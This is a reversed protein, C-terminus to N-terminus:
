KKPSIVLLIMKGTIQAPKDITGLDALKEYFNNVIKVGNKAYAQQRGKMRLVVKVKNGDNLFRTAHRLKTELDHTDITMSLQIEKFEVTKQNKKMEKEKKMQEFKFKGYDMLKCVVPNSANSILVLDVGADFALRKAEEISVVGLQEGDEGILRVKSATIQDNILLQKITKIRRFFYNTFCFCEGILFEYWFLKLIKLWALILGVPSLKVRSWVSIFIDYYYAM